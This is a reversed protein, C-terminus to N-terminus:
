YRGQMAPRCITRRAAMMVCVPVYTHGEVCMYACVWVHMCWFSLGTSQWAPFWFLNSLVSITERLSVKLKQCPIHAYSLSPPLRQYSWVTGSAGRSQYWFGTQPRAAAPAICPAWQLGSEPHESSFGDRRTPGLGTSLLHFLGVLAKEEYWKVRFCCAQWMGPTGHQYFRRPLSATQERLTSQAGVRQTFSLSAIGVSPM